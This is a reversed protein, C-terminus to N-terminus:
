QLHYEPLSMLARTLRRLRAEADPLDPMYPYSGGETLVDLALSYHRKSFGPGLLRELMHGAVGESTSAGNALMLGVLDFQTPDSVTTAGMLRDVFRSRSVVMGSSLWVSGKESFGTPASYLFLPMGQRSPELALDDGNSVGRLQRVAGVIYELPSRVKALRNGVKEFESSAFVASLVRKMQDPQDVNAIFTDSCTQVTTAPSDDLVFVQVLKRCIFKATAAQRSLLDLVQEGDQQGGGSIATGLLSKAGTDHLGSNFYFVGDKVTWGTFARAANVVDTQTYGGDVGLTHLELLERGYNENPALKMNYVGDLFYLMAPSHASVGLLDRFNGLAHARFAAMETFEFDSNLHTFYNTNFHNDWFWTMVERLQHRTYVARRLFTTAIQTGSGAWYGSAEDYEPDEYQDADLQQQLYTQKGKQMYEQLTEFTPGFSTRQLVHWAQRFSDSPTLALSQTSENGDGDVATLVVNIPASTFEPDPVIALSWRGSQPDVEVARAAMSPMGGGNVTATLTSGLTDDSVLGSVVFGGTPVAAGPGHTLVTLVPQETGRGLTLSISDEGSNSGVDTALASVRITGTNQADLLGTDVYWTGSSARVIAAKEVKVGSPLTLTVKVSSVAKDDSVTGAIRTGASTVKSGDAPSTIAIAPGSRDHSQGVVFTLAGPQSISASIEWNEYYKTEFNFSKGSGLGDLDLSALGNVDTVARARWVKGGGAPLEYAELSQAGVPLGTVADLM